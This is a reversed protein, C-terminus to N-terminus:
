RSRTGLALLTTKTTEEKKQKWAEYEGAAVWGDETAFGWTRRFPGTVLVTWASNGRLKLFHLDEARHVVVDGPRCVRAQSNPQYEVYGGRLILSVFDMPHDHFHRDRDSRLIHHVRLCGWPTVLRWRRMYDHAIMDSSIEFGWFRWRWYIARGATEHGVRKDDDM